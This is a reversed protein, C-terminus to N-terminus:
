AAVAGRLEQMVQQLRRLGDMIQGRRERELTRERVRSGPPVGHALDALQQALVAGLLHGHLTMLARADGDPLRGAAAAEHLRDPTSRATSGIRLALVRALSVLPLLGDRKLDIRGDQTPLRRLWGFRPALSQVSEALLAIFPGSHQAAAVAEAHLARGLRTDGSVPALDFFIDVNLLDEPRARRLWTDVRERWSAVSGRWQANADMVGGKCRPVGATDLLEAVHEGLIAFWADDGSGGQHILANDQDAVLLSEGRGGSGLM